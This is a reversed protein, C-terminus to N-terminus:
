VRTKGAKRCSLLSTRVAETVEPLGFPTRPFEGALPPLQRILGSSHGPLCTLSVSWLERRGNLSNRLLFGSSFPQLTGFTQWPSAAVQPSAQCARPCAPRVTSP